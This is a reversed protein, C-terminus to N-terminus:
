ACRSHAVPQQMTDALATLAAALEAMTPRDEAEKALARLIL